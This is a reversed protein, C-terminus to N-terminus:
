MLAKYLIGYYINESGFETEVFEREHLLVLGAKSAWQRIKVKMWRHFSVRSGPEVMDGVDMDGMGEWVSVLLRGNPRLVRAWEAFCLEAKEETVHHLAFNNLVASMTCDQIGELTTMDCCQIFLADPLRRKSHEVMDPSIDVGAIQLSPEMKKLEQIMHGTGVATDLITGLPLDHLLREFDQKYKPVEAPMM